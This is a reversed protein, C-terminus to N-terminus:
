TDQGGTAEPHKGTGPHKQDVSSGLSPWSDRRDEGDGLGVPTSELSICVHVKAPPGPLTKFEAEEWSSLLLAGARLRSESM